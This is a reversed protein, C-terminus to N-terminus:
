AKFDGASFTRWAQWMSRCQECDIRAGPPLDARKQDHDDGDLGCLSAYDGAGVDGSAHVELKGDVVLAVLRDSMRGHAPLGGRRALEARVFCGDCSVRTPPLRKTRMTVYDGCSLVLVLILGGRPGEQELVRVVDRIPAREAM